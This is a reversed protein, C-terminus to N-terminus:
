ASKAPFIPEIDRAYLALETLEKESLVGLSGRKVTELALSFMKIDGPPIASTIEQSLSYKLSLSAIYPNDIPKYWCKPCTREEGEQWNTEAMSKLALRAIGKEKARMYIGNGWGINNLSFYNYPFLVSDFDFNNFLLDAAEESHVSFGIHRIYGKEKAKIFFELAGGPALISEAEAVSAVGHLQYLDFYDTLLKNFSDFLAAEAEKGTRKETKCALFIEKRFDKIAPGLKDQADGYTPAVDFYNVGADFAAKAYQNATKQEESTVLIGGFGIVSLFEDYKGYKRKEM